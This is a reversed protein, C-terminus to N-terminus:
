SERQSSYTSLGSVRAQATLLKITTTQFLDTLLRRKAFHSNYTMDISMRPLRMVM